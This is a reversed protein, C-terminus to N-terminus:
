MLGEYVLPVVTVHERDAPDPEGLAMWCAKCLPAVTEGIRIDGAVSLVAAYRDCLRCISHYSPTKHLLFPYGTSPDTSHPLRLNYLDTPATSECYSIFLAFRIQDFVILHECNGQHLLWYPQHLRITLTDLKTSHMHGGSTVLGPGKQNIYDKLRSSCVDTLQHSDIIIVM